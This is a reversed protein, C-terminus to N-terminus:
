RSCTTLTDGTLISPYSRCKPGKHTAYAVENVVGIVTETVMARYAAQRRAREAEIRNEEEAHANRITANHSDVLALEFNVPDDCKTPNLDCYQTVKDWDAAFYRRALHADVYRNFATQCEEDNREKCVRQRFKERFSEKATHKLFPEDGHVRELVLVPDM